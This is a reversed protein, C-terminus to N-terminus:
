NGQSKFTLNSALNNDASLFKQEVQWTEDSFTYVAIGNVLGPTAFNLSRASFIQTGSTGVRFSAISHRHGHLILQFNNNDLLTLLPLANRVTSCDTNNVGILHHHLVAVLQKKERLLKVNIKLLNEIFEMDLLGYTPNKHHATNLLLFAINSDCILFAPFNEFVPDPTRRIAYQFNDFETFSKLCIDHNGPCALFRARSGGMDIWVDNIVKLAESYGEARGKFIIDGSVILYTTLKSNERMLESLADKIDSIPFAPNDNGFHTDSLHIIRMIIVVFFDLPNESLYQMFFVFNATLLQCFSLYRLICGDAGVTSQGVHIRRWFLESKCGNGVRRLAGVHVRAVIVLVLRDRHCRHQLRVLAQQGLVFHHQDFARATRSFDIQALAVDGVHAKGFRDIARYDQQGVDVAAAHEGM